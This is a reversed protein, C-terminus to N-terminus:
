DILIEEEDNDLDTENNESVEETDTGTIGQVNRELEDMATQLEPLQLEPSAPPLEANGITTGGEIGSLLDYGAVDKLLAFGGQVAIGYGITKFETSKAIQSVAMGIAITGIPKILAKGDVGVIGEVHNTAKDIFLGVQKGAVFGVILMMPTKIDKLMKGVSIKTISSGRKSSRKRRKSSDKKAEAM